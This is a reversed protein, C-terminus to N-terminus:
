GEPIARAMVLEGAQPRLRAWQDEPVLVGGVFILAHAGGVIERLTIGVAMEDVIRESSLPHPFAVLSFTQQRALVPLNDTM